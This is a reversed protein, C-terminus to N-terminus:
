SRSPRSADYVKFKGTGMATALEKEAKRELRSTPLEKHHRGSQRDYEDEWRPNSRLCLKLWTAWEWVDTSVVRM